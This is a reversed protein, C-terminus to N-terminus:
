AKEGVWKKEAKRSRGTFWLSTSSATGTLAALEHKEKEEILRERKKGRKKSIGEGPSRRKESWHNEKDKVIYPRGENTSFVVAKGRQTRIEGKGRVCGEVLSSFVREKEEGGLM